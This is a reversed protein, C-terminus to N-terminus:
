RIWYKFGLAMSIVKPYAPIITTSFDLDDNLNINYEFDMGYWLLIYEWPGLTLYNEDFHNPRVKIWNERFYLTPGVGWSLYHPGVSMLKFKLGVHAVGAFLGSCESMAGGLFRFSAKDEKFFWEGSALIGLNVVYRGIPDIKRILIETSPDGTPHVSLGMFKVSFNRLDQAFSNQCLICALVFVLIFQVKKMM